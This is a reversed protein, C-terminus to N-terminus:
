SFCPLLVAVFLLMEPIRRACLRFGLAPLLGSDIAFM